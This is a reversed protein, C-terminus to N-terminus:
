AIPTTMVETLVGYDGKTWAEVLRRGRETLRVKYHVCHGPYGASGFPGCFHALGAGILRSFLLVGDGSLELRDVEPKSLFMLHDLTPVDFAGSLSVILSKWIKISEPHIEGRHYLGHCTPCLALLNESDDAGGDAVRVMHHLDVALITRCMKGPTLCFEPPWPCPM